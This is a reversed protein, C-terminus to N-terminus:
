LTRFISGVLQKASEIAEADTIENTAVDKNEGKFKNSNKIWNRVSAKWDKMKNRGVVWGKSEYFDFYNEPENILDISIQKQNSYENMYESVENLAPKVFRNKEKKDNKLENTTTVLKNGAQQENTVLKNDQKNNDQYKNYNNITIMRNKSTSKNTIENTSILKTLSTRIQQVSLGIDLSLSELSTLVQGRNITIGRWKKDKHNALILLHLFLIKANKDDYWEWELMSRYINIFGKDM